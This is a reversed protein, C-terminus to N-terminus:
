QGMCVNRDRSHPKNERKLPKRSGWSLWYTPIEMFPVEVGAFGVKPVYSFITASFFFLGNAESLVPLLMM